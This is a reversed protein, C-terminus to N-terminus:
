NWDDLIDQFEAAMSPHGHHDAEEVARSYAAAAEDSRGLQRLAHGLRGWGNGQDDGLELYRQLAAVTEAWDGRKEHELAIGFHLRADGPARELMRRLADIRDTSM